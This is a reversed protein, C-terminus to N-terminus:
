QVRGFQGRSDVAIARNIAIAENASIIKVIVITEVFM